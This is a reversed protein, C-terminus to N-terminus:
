KDVCISSGAGRLFGGSSASPCPPASGSSISVSNPHFCPPKVNNQVVSVGELKLM